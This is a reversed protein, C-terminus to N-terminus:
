DDNSGDDDAYDDEEIYEEMLEDEGDILEGYESEEFYGHRVLTNHFAIRFARVEEEPADINAIQLVATALMVGLQAPNGCLAMPIGKFSEEENPIGMAFGATHEDDAFNDAFGNLIEQLREETM